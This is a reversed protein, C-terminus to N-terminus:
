ASRLVPLALDWRGDSSAGLCGLRAPTSRPDCPWSTVASVSTMLCCGTSGLSRWPLLSPAFLLARWYRASVVAAIAGRDRDDDATLWRRLMPGGGTVLPLFEPSVPAVAIVAPRDDVTWATTTTDMYQMAALGEFSRARDRLAKFEPYSLSQRFDQRAVDNKWFRVVRDQHAVIPRLLVADVVAFSATVVGVGLALTGVALASFTRERVFRRVAFRIEDM